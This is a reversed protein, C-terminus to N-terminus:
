SRASTRASQAHYWPRTHFVQAIRFDDGGNNRMVTCLDERRSGLDNIVARPEMDIDIVALELGRDRPWESFRRLKVFEIRDSVLAGNRLCKRQFRMEHDTVRVRNAFSKRTRSEIPDDRM